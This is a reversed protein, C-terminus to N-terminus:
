KGSNNFLFSNRKSLIKATSGRLPTESCRNCGYKSFTARRSARPAWFVREVERRFPEELGGLRREDFRQDLCNQTFIGALSRIGRHSRSPM